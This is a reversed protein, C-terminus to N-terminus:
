KRLLEVFGAVHRLPARLDHSVSYSFTELDSNSRSLERGNEELAVNKDHIAQENRKAETMDRTIKAFGRLRGGKDFLATIVVSAWFQNGNKRVRWGEENTHGQEVAKRLEHEPKGQAIDESSYLWSFQKGIIENAKYGKIREAGKKWSVVHGQPSLMFIAYDQVGEVLLRFREESERLVQNAAQLQATREAVRQGLEANLCRIEDQLRERAARRNSQVGICVTNM